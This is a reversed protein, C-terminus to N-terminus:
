DNKFPINLAGRIHRFKWWLLLTGKILIWKIVTKKWYRPSPLLIMHQGAVSCRIERRFAVGTDDGSDFATAEHLLKNITM